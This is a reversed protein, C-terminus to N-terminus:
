GLKLKRGSVLEGEEAGSIVSREDSFLKKFAVVFALL